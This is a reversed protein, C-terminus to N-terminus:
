QIVFGIEELAEHTKKFIKGERELARFERSEEMIKKIISSVGSVYVTIGRGRLMHIMEDFVEAGDIDVFFLERLRLVVQECHTTAHELRELHAQANFYALQGRVSYVITQVNGRVHTREEDYIRDIQRHKKDNVIMEFQGRSLKDAFVLLSAAVGFFIGLIPDEYVTIFAVAIALGFEKRDFVFLKKFHKVEIMRAATYVLIAAIVAMPIYNFAGLLVFSILAIAVASVVGSMRHNAGSKVNLSTRALAATAPIGGALGSAINALGLGLMERRKDYKTKTMSDAIKASLLTELIAVVAVAFAAGILSRDFSWATIDFLQPAINSFRDGLTQLRLPIMEHAGLYGLAIGIPTLAIVAPIRPALKLILFLGALFAGFVLTTEPSADGAHQVSAIINEIFREHPPLGQLGTAFNFQNLAIIIAVGLTFGHLTSAPVFVLYRELKMAFAVLIIIGSVVALVSLASAGHAIAYTALIGSLAGTPGVINFHSGGLLAAVLGAWIATIIGDIPSAQSAVALSISLPLSVLAVTIGAKWNHRLHYLTM